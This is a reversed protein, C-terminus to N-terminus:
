RQREERERKAEGAAIHALRVPEPLRYRTLCALALRRSGPHDILHGPSVFIPKVGSRTRLVSGVQRGELILRSYDGRRGGVEGHEGVLRSKACGAVPVALSVGTHAALGFRRPHAIGQGDCLVAHVPQRVRQFCRLLVPLERFSLYGPVYPFSPRLAATRTEVAELAPFSLVVVAGVLLDLKKSVAVDAGAVYKVASLSFPRLAVRRSLRKQVARAQNFDLDWPHLQSTKVIGPLSCLRRPNRRPNM